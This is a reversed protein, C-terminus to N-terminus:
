RQTAAMERALAVAVQGALYANNCALERNAQVSNGNTHRHIHELLFPTLAKGGIHRRAAERLAQDIAIEMVKPNMAYSEPIPNAILVGGQLGLDWKTRLMRAIAEPSDLRFPTEYGSSRTYFAPFENTQYGIVPVGRTELYELTLQIDLISKAGASIVAVSTHGLVELDASVDFSQPAGRHVGGIGVTAFVRIDALAACIMTAAVTTAAHTGTSLYVPLDRRSAKEINPAQALFSLDEHSLGIKIKSNLVAITAPVAGAARVQEEIAFAVDLNDPYPFGHAIITSELAVLPVQDALAARVEESFVLYPSSHASFSM